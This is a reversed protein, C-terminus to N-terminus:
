LEKQLEQNDAEVKERMANRYARMQDAVEPYKIGLIQIALLAANKVSDVGVTAVPIGPPMMVISYLADQGDFISSSIPVGIVPLITYASIVGPLHASKGAGAIIVEYQEEEWKKIYSKLLAPTRHASAIAVDCELGFDKLISVASEMKPWDSRSGMVIAIKPM